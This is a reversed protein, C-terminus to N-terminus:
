CVSLATMLRIGFVSKLWLFYFRFTLKKLGHLWRPWKAGRALQSGHLGRSWWINKGTNKGRNKGSNNDKNM